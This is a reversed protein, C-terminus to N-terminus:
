YNNPKNELLSLMMGGLMLGFVDSLCGSINNFQIMESRIRAEEIKQNYELKLKELELNNNEKAEKIQWILEENDRKFREISSNLEQFKEIPETRIEVLENKWDGDYKISGDLYILKKRIKKFKKIVLNEGEINKEEYIQEEDEEKFGPHKSEEVIDTNIPENSIIQLRLRKM